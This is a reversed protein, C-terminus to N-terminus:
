EVAILKLTSVDAGERPCGEVVVCRAKNGPNLKRFRDVAAQESMFGHAQDVTGSVKAGQKSMGEVVVVSWLPANEKSDDVATTM